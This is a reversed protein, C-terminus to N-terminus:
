RVSFHETPQYLASGSVCVSAFVVFAEDWCLWGFALASRRYLGSLADREFAFGVLAVSVYEAVSSVGLPPSQCSGELPSYGLFRLLRSLCM